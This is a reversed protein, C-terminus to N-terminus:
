QRTSFRKERRAPRKARGVVQFERGEAATAGNNSGCHQEYSCRASLGSAVKRDPGKPESVFPDGTFRRDSFPPKKSVVVAGLSIPPAFRVSTAKSLLQRAAPLVVETLVSTRLRCRLSESLIGHGLLQGDERKAIAGRGARLRTEERASAEEIRDRVAQGGIALAWAATRWALEAHRTEDEAIIKLVARVAPDRAHELAERAEVAAVTEGVCGEAFVADVLAVLDTADLCGDIALPGPGLDRDAYASALAFALQAHKTEDAMARQAAMVLEPPASVALLQLAFRAFAAISAHEM